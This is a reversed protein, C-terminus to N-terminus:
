GMMTRGANVSPPLPPPMAASSTSSRSIASRPSRMDGIWWIRTSCHMAPQFSISNSTMRSEMPLQMVMQEMSFKSGTPTCVPSEMTMAGATVRASLSYWISREAASLIM